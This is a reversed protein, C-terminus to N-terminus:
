SDIMTDYQKYFNDLLLMMQSKTIKNSNNNNDCIKNMIETFVKLYHLKNGQDDKMYNTNKKDFCNPFKISTRNGVNSFKNKDYKKNIKSIKKYTKHNKHKTDIYLQSKHRNDIDFSINKNARKTMKLTSTFEIIDNLIICYM